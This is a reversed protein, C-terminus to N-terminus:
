RRAPRRHSYLVPNMKPPHAARQKRASFRKRQNAVRCVDCREAERFGKHPAHSLADSPPLAVVRVQERSFISDRIRCMASPAEMTGRERPARKDDWYGAIIDCLESPMPGISRILESVVRILESRSSDQNRMNLQKTYWPRWRDSSDGKGNNILRLLM